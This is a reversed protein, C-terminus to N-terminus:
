PPLAAVPTFALLIRARLHTFNPLGYAVRKLLKITTNIGETVGNTVRDRFFNLIWAQWRRITAALEGREKLGAQKVRLLWARLRSRAVQVDELEYWRRLWHVLSHALRL